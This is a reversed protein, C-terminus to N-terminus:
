HKHNKKYQNIAAAIAALKQPGLQHDSPLPAAPAAAPVPAAEGAFRALLTVAVIALSLFAFVFAMGLGMLSAAELLQASLNNM